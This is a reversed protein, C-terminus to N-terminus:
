SARTHSLIIPPPLPLSHSTSPSEARQWIMAARYGLPYTPSAPLSPPSVPVLSSIPLPPSPIQPLPSLWLSLPLPLPSPIALLEDKDEEVDDDDDKDDKSSEDDDDDDGGNASYDTPDEEPDEKDEEPDSNRIYMSLTFEPSLPAQEPEEPGPVYDPSPPAQFTAVVYAYPDEPMVPPGDVGPSGINSMGGFPSSVATYTVTSDESDSMVIHEWTFEPARRSNWRVKFIPIRSKNLRKVEHDMIEVPEEVFHLKDDIHLGDLLVFLPQRCLVEELQICSVYQSGVQSDPVGPDALFALQEEDLIQGVEQAEVQCNYCKVVRAQGNTNNGGSNTVGNKYGTGSYSKVQRGLTSSKKTTINRGASLADAVVNARGPNIVFKAIYDDAFELWRRNGLLPVQRIFSQGYTGTTAEALEKMESPALIHPPSYTYCWTGILEFSCKALPHYVPLDEPFVEPYNKFVPCRELNNKDQNDEDKTQQHHKSLIRSM